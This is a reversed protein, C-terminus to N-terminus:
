GLCYVIQLIRCTIRDQCIFFIDFNFICALTHYPFHPKILSREHQKTKPDWYHNHHFDCGNMFTKRRAKINTIYVICIVIIKFDNKNKEESPM